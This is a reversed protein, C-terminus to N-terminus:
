QVTGIGLWYSGCLWSSLWRGYDSLAISSSSSQPLIRSITVQLCSPLIKRMGHVALLIFTDIRLSSLMV